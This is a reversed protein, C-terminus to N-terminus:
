NIRKVIKVHHLECGWDPADRTERHKNWHTPKRHYTHGKVFSVAAEAWVYFSFPTPHNSLAESGVQKPGVYLRRRIRRRRVWQQQVHSLSLSPLSLLFFARQRIHDPMAVHSRTHTHARARSLSGAPGGTYFFYFLFRTVITIAATKRRSQNGERKEQALCSILSTLEYRNAGEQGHCSSRFHRWSLVKDNTLFFHFIWNKWNVCHSSFYWSITPTDSWMKWQNNERRQTKEKRGM